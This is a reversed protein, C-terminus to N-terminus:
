SLLAGQMAPLVITFVTGGRARDRVSVKGEHLDEVIRRTLSLGVGWGSSKTTVGAEFIRGRVAADIGPGDDAIHIRVTREDAGRGAYIVITGGRGALADVSNKVINELAWALLVANARLPPLGQQVRVRLAIGSGLRPLRPRFYHELEGVVAGVTVAALAPPKGILEFRHSVRGLREVDGHMVEAIHTPDAMAEREAAPLRLIEIWGTLSSLPTGMQHALERAMASWLREREARAEARLLTFAIAILVLSITVQLWPVWNLWALLPPDGYVITAYDPIDVRNAPRRRQLERSYELIMARGEATGPSAEFPLNAAGYVDGEPTISVTPVGLRQLAEQVRVLAALEAEEDPSALGQQVYAYIESHVRADARVRRLLLQTYILYSAFVLLTVAALAAPWYRRSM